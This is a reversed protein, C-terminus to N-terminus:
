PLLLRIAARNETPRIRLTARPPVALAAVFGRRREEVAV